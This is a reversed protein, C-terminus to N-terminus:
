FFMQSDSGGYPVTIRFLRFLGHGTMQVIREFPCLPLQPLFLPEAAPSINSIAGPSIPLVFGTRDHIQEDFFGARPIRRPATICDEIYNWGQLKTDPVM